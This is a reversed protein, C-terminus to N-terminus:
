AKKMENLKIITVIPDLNNKRLAQVAKGKQVGTMEMVHAIDEPDIGEPNFENVKSYIERRIQPNSYREELARIKKKALELRDSERQSIIINNLKPNLPNFYPNNVLTNPNPPRTPLKTYIPETKNKKTFIKKLTGANRKSRLKKLKRSNKPLKKKYTRKKNKKRM